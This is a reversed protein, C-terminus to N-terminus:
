HELFLLKCWSGMVCMVTYSLNELRWSLESQALKEALLSFNANIVTM